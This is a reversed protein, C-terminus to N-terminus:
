CLPTGPRGKRPACMQAPSLDIPDDTTDGEAVTICTVVGTATMAFGVKVIYFAHQHCRAQQYRDQCIGPTQPAGRGQVLSSSRTAFRRVRVLWARKVQTKTAGRLPRRQAQPTNLDGRVFGQRNCENSTRQPCFACQTCALIKATATKPQRTRSQVHSEYPPQETSRATSQSVHM